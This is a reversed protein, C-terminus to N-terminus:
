LQQELAELQRLLIGAHAYVETAFIHRPTPLAPRVMPADLANVMSALDASVLLAIDIVQGPETDEDINRRSLTGYAPMSPVDFLVHGDAAYAHGSAILAGIMAIMEAIHRTARPEVDPDLCGLAHIDDWYAQATRRTIEDIPEGTEKHANIIKDDVDTINRVYTVHKPGYLRRLLRYLVDFAVAPRANGIHAYDYVTPGCVYMGVRNPDIPEFVQKERALTNYLSLTM